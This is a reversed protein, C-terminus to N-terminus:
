STPISSKDTFFRTTYHHSPLYRKGLMMQISPTIRPLSPLVEGYNHSEINQPIDENDDPIDAVSFLSASEEPSHLDDQRPSFRM